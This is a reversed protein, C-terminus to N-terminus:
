WAEGLSSAAILHGFVDPEGHLAGPEVYHDDWAALIADRGGLPAPSLAPFRQDGLIQAPDRPLQWFAGMELTETQGDWDLEILGLDDGNPGGPVVLALFFRDDSRVLAPMTLPFHLSFPDTPDTLSLLTMGNTTADLVAGEVKPVESVGDEGPDTLTGYVLLLHGADLEVLAPRSEVPGPVHLPTQWTMEGDTVVIRELGTAFDSARWAAAWGGKTFTTLAVSGELEATAALTREDTLPQLSADFTRYRLDPGKLADTDDAWAVVLENGTWVLDADGQMFARSQNAYRVPGMQGTTSVRRMAVGLGDGDGGFDTWVVAFHTSSVAAVGPDTFFPPTTGASVQAVGARAGAADFLALGIRAEDGHPEVHAIAFGGTGAGAPHRGTGLWRSQVKGADDPAGSPVALFDLSTCTSSCTDTEDSNGDDCEEGPETVANGCAQMTARVGGGGDLPTGFGRNPDDFFGADELPEALPESTPAAPPARYVPEARAPEEPAQADWDDFFAAKGTGSGECAALAGCLAGM